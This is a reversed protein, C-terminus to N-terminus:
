RRMVKMFQDAADVSFQRGVFRDCVTEFIKVQRNRAEGETMLPELADVVPEVEGFHPILETTANEGMVHQSLLNPLTLPRNRILWRGLINWGMKSVNYLSVMPLRHTVGQLTATGSVILGIDAWDLVLGARSTEITMGNPLKGGCLDVIAAQRLEDSAAVVARMGPHKAKLAEYAALMTPWNKTIESPRSGPLLAVKPEGELNLVADDENKGDVGREVKAHESEFLPHGVFTADVGRDGFWKEEFPLLCLVHDTLKRLKRIRWPAWAWLQPAALHVIKANPCRKRVKRCIGWNAAPSDTPVLADIKNAKLWADVRKLRLHHEHAHKLAGALMVAHETTVEILEAGAAKMRPGGLAMIRVDPQRRKLETILRSALADGSPEFASFLITGNISM